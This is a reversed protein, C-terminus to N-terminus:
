LPNIRLPRVAVFPIELTEIRLPPLDAIPSRFTAGPEVEPTAPDDQPEGGVSAAAVRSDRPGFVDAM